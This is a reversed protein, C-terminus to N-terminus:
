VGGHACGILDSHSLRHRQLFKEVGEAIERFIKEVGGYLATGIQVWTAGAQMLEVADEYSGVGGVGIIPIEVSEYIDYICRVAIPKVCPGSLGGAKNSLVPRMSEIEISMGPGVTNIAVLADAGAREAAIAVEEINNVNPSLKAFVPRSTAEKSKAVISGVVVPDSGVALGFSESHPCSLNLEFADAIGELRSIVEAFEESNSGYVSVILPVRFPEEAIGEKIDEAFAKCGPNALGVANLFGGEVEVVIPGPYGPNPRIGVSKTVLGGAGESEVRKLSGYTEGLVGAALLVPNTVKVGAIENWSRL